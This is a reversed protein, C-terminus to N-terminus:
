DIENKSRFGNMILREAKRMYYRSLDEGQLFNETLIYQKKIVMDLDKIYLRKWDYLIHCPPFELNEVIDLNTEHKRDKEIKHFWFSYQGSHLCTYEHNFNNYFFLCLNRNSIRSFEEVDVRDEYILTLAYSSSSTICHLLFQGCIPVRNEKLFNFIIDDNIYKKILNEIDHYKSPIRTRILKSTLKLCLIEIFTLYPCLIKITDFYSFCNIHSKM